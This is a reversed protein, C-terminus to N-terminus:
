FFREQTSLAFKRIRFKESLTSHLREIDSNGTQNNPKTFHVEIGEQRLFEKVNTSNLENDTIM